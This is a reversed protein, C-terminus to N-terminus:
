EIEPSPNAPHTPAPPPASITPTQEEAKEEIIIPAAQPTGSPLYMVKIEFKVLGDEAVSERSIDPDEFAPHAFLNDVFRYTVEDSKAEGSITLTVRSDRQAQAQAQAENVDRADKDVLGSPALRNLRVGDPLVEALRDFLLSWSFTREAIRRNLFRVQLNQQDLGSGALRADLRSVAQSENAVQTELRGLEARKEGSGSLYNWFLSVNGLLLLAGLLWLLLAIRTVPRTNTFPRRAVNLPQMRELAVPAPRSVPAASKETLVSM